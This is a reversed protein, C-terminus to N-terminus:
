KKVTYKRVRVKQPLLYQADNHAIIDSDTTGANGSNTLVPPSDQLELVSSETENPIKLTADTGSLFLSSNEEPSDISYGTRGLDQNHLSDM